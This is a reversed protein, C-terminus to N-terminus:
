KWSFFQLYTHHEAGSQKRSGVEIGAVQKNRAESLKCRDNCDCYLRPRLRLSLRPRDAHLVLSICVIILAICLM